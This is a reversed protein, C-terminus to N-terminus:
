AQLLLLNLTDWLLAAGLQSQSRWDILGAALYLFDMVRLLVLSRLVGTGFFRKLQHDVRRGNGCTREM